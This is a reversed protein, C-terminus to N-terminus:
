DMTEPRLQVVALGGLVFPVLAWARMMGYRRLERPVDLGAVATALARPRLLLVAHLTLATYNVGVGIAWAGVVRALPHSTLALIGIGLALGLVAAAVLEGLVLWRRAPDGTPGHLDIAVLHRVNLRVVSRGDHRRASM